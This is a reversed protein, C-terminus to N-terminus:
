LLKIKYIFDTTKDIIEAEGNSPSYKIDLSLSPWPLYELMAEVIGPATVIRTSCIEYDFIEFKRM